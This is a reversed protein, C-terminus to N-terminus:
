AVSTLVTVAIVAPEDKIKTSPYQHYDTERGPRKMQLFWEFSTLTPKQESRYALSLLFSRKRAQCGVEEIRTV